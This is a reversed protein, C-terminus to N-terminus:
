RGVGGALDRHRGHQLRDHRPEQRRRRAPEVSLRCTRWLDWCTDYYFPHEMPEGKKTQWARTIAEVYGASGKAAGTREGHYRADIAVGIINRKALEEMFGLQGRM